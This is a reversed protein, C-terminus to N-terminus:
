QLAGWGRMRTAGTEITRTMPFLRCMIAPDSRTLGRAIEVDGRFHIRLADAPVIDRGSKLRRHRVSHFIDYRRRVPCQALTDGNRRHCDYSHM